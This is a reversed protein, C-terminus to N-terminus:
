GTLLVFAVLLLRIVLMGVRAMVTEEGRGAEKM